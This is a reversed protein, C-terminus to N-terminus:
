FLRPLYFLLPSLSTPYFSYSSKATHFGSIDKNLSILSPPLSLPLAMIMDRWHDANSVLAESPESIVLFLERAPATYPVQPLTPLSMPLPLPNPSRADASRPTLSFAPSSTPSKRLLACIPPSQAKEISISLRKTPALKRRPSVSPTCQSPPPLSGSRRRQSAYSPPPDPSTARLDILTPVTLVPLSGRRSLAASSVYPSFRHSKSMSGARQRGSLRIEPTARDTPSHPNSRFTDSANSSSSGWSSTRGHSSRRRGQEPATDDSLGLSSLLEVFSPLSPM